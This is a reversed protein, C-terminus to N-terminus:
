FIHEILYLIVLLLVGYILIKVYISASTHSQERWKSGM